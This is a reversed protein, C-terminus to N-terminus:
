YNTESTYYPSHSKLSVVGFSEESFSKLKKKRGRSECLSIFSVVPYRDDGKSERSLADPGKTNIELRSKFLLLRRSKMLFM